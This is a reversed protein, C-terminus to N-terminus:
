SVFIQILGDVFEALASVGWLFFRQVKDSLSYGKRESIENVAASKSSNSPDDQKNKPIVIQQEHSATATTEVTQPQQADRVTVAGYLGCVLLVFLIVFCEIVFRKM